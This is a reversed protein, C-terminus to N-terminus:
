ALVMSTPVNTSGANRWSSSRTPHLTKPYLLTSLLLQGNMKQFVILLYYIVVPRPKKGTQQLVFTGVRESRLKLDLRYAKLDQKSEYVESLYATILGARGSREKSSIRAGWDGIPWKREESSMEARQLLEGFVSRCIRCNMDASRKLGLLNAHHDFILDFTGRWQRGEQGRLLGYCVACIMTPISEIPSRFNTCAVRFPEPLAEPLFSCRGPDFVWM